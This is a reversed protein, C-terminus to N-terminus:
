DPQTIWFRYPDHRGLRHHCDVTRSHSSASRMLTLYFRAGPEGAQIIRSMEKETNESNIENSAVTATWDLVQINSSALQDESVFASPPYLFCFLLTQHQVDTNTVVHRILPLASQVASSQLLLFSHPRSPGSLVSPLLSVM